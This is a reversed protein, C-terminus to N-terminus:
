MDPAKWIVLTDLEKSSGAPSEDTVKPANDNDAERLDELEEEAKKWRKEGEAAEKALRKNEKDLEEIRMAQKRYIEPATDGDTPFGYGPSPLGGSSQRFSSSRMKSQQSMSPARHHSSPSPLESVTEEADKTTDEEPEKPEEGKTEEASPFAEAETKENEEPPDTAEQTEKVSEVKEEKKAGTGKAKKKKM